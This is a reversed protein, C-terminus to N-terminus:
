VYRAIAMAGTAIVLLWAAFRAGMANRNNLRQIESAQEPIAPNLKKVRIAAPMSIATGGVLALLAAFSGMGLTMGRLGGVAPGLVVFMAVGSIVNALAVIGMVPGIRPGLRSMLAGAGPGVVRVTPLLIFATFMVSGAWFVGALIHILRLWLM